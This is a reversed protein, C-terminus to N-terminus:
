VTELPTFKINTWGEDEALQKIKETCLLDTLEGKKFNSWTFLDGGNWSSEIVKWVKPPWPKPYLIANGEDDTPIGMAEWSVDIGRGAEIVFYDPQPMQQIRKGQKGEVISGVPMLTVRFPKAGASELGKLVNSSYFASPPGGGCGLADPWETGKSSLEIGAPTPNVKWM